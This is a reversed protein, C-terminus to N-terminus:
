RGAEALIGELQEIHEELHGVVFRELVAGATMEGVRPHLGLRATETDSLERMRAALRASDSQLRAFLERLPTTRDRGIIAIRTPDAAVRGFPVPEHGAAAGELIREMEGLWFPIM